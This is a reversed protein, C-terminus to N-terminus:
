IGTQQVDFQANVELMLPNIHIKFAASCSSTSQIFVLPAIYYNSVVINTECLVHLVDSIYVKIAQLV